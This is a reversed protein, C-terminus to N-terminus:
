KLGATAFGFDTLVLCITPDIAPPPQKGKRVREQKCETEYTRELEKLKHFSIDHQYNTPVLINEFKLDRHCLINEAGKDACYM